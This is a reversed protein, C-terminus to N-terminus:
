KEKKTLTGVLSRVQEKHEKIRRSKELRKGKNTYYNPLNAINKKNTIISKRSQKMANSMNLNRTNPTNKFTVSKKKNLRARKPTSSNTNNWNRNRKRRTSNQSGNNMEVNENMRIFINLYIEM